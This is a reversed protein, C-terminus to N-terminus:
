WRRKIWSLVGHKKDAIANFLDEADTKSRHAYRSAESWRQVLDWNEALEGDVAKDTDFEDKLGALVVLRKDDHTWCQEAFVKDPFVEPKTLKAICAKLAFEVAYGVFYYAASWRKAALLAKADRVREEALQQFDSRNVAAARGPRFQGTRM